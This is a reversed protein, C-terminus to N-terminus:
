AVQMHNQQWKPMKLSMRLSLLTFIGLGMFVFTLFEAHMFANFIYTDLKGVPISRLNNIISAVHLVVSLGYIAIAFLVGHVVLPHLVIRLAYAYYVRRMINKQLQNIKSM